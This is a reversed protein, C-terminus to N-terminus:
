IASIILDLEEKTKGLKVQLKRLMEDKKGEEFKIDADTLSPFKARLKSVQENWKEAVPAPTVPVNTM